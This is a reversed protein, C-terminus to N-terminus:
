PVLGLTAYFVLGSVVLVIVAYKWGGFILRWAEENSKANEIRARLTPVNRAIYLRSVYSVIFVVCVAVAVLLTKLNWDDKVFSILFGLGFLLVFGIITYGYLNVSKSKLIIDRIDQKKEEM